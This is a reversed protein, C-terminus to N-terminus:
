TTNKNGSEEGVPINDRRRAPWAATSRASPVNARDLMGAM